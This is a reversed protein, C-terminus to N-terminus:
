RYLWYKCIIWLIIMTLVVFSLTNVHLYSM